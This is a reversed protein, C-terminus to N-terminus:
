KYKIFTFTLSVIIELGSAIVIDSADYNKVEMNFLRGRIPQKLLFPIQLPIPYGSFIPDGVNSPANLPNIYFSHFFNSPDIMDTRLAYIYRDDSPDTYDSLNSFIFQKLIVEDPEFELNDIQFTQKDENDFKFSLIITKMNFIEKM